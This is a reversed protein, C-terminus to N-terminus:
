VTVMWVLGLWDTVTLVRYASPRQPSAYPPRSILRVSPAPTYVYLQVTRLLAGLPEAVVMAPM